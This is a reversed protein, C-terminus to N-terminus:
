ARQAKCVSRELEAAVGLVQEIIFALLGLSYTIKAIQTLIVDVNVSLDVDPLNWQFWYGFDFGAFSVALDYTSLGFFDQYITSAVDSRSFGYASLSSHLALVQLVVGAVHLYCTFYYKFAPGEAMRLIFGHIPRDEFGTLDVDDDVKSPSLGM